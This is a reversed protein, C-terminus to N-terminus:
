WKAMSNRIKTYNKNVESPTMKRVQEATFFDSQAEQTNQLAGPSSNKNALMQAAMDQARSDYKGVFKLFGSYIESLPKGEKGDAYDLFDENTLLEELNVTPHKSQFVEIDKQIWDSPNRFYNLSTM